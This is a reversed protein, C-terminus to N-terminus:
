VASSKWLPCNFRQTGDRYQCGQRLCDDCDNTIKLEEITDRIVKTFRHCCHHEQDYEKCDGCWEFEENM